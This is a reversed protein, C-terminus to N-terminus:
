FHRLPKKGGECFLITKGAPSWVGERSIVQKGISTGHMGDLHRTTNTYTGQDIVHQLVPPM